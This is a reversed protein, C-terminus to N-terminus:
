ANCHPCWTAFFELLVAKGRLARLSVPTGTPTRLTFDPAQAGIPLLDETFIKAASAPEDEIRGAGDADP